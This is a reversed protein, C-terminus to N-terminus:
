ALRHFASRHAGGALRADLRGGAVPPLRGAALRRLSTRSSSRWTTCSARARPSAIGEAEVAGRAAEDGELAAVDLPESGEAATEFWDLVVDHADPRDPRVGYTLTVPLWLMAWAVVEGADEFVQVHKPTADAPPHQHLWWTLDGPTPAAHRRERGFVAAQVAHMRALDEAGRYARAVIM